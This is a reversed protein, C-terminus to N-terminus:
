LEGRHWKEGRYALSISRYTDFSNNLLVIGFNNVQNSTSVASLCTRELRQNRLEDTRSPWLVILSSSSSQTLEILTARYGRVPRRTGCRGAM